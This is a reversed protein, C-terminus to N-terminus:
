KQTEEEDDSEDDGDEGEGGLVEDAFIEDLVELVREYEDDDDIEVLNQGGESDEEIRCILYEDEDDDDSCEDSEDDSESGDERKPALVAYSHEDVDFEAVVEFELTNGDEDVVEVINNETDTM